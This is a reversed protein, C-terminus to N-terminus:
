SDLGVSPFSLHAEQRNSGDTGWFPPVPSLPFTFTSEGSKGLLRDMAGNRSRLTSSATLGLVGVTPRPARAGALDSAAVTSLRPRKRLPAYDHETSLAESLRRPRKLTADPLHM